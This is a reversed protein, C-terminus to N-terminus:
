MWCRVATLRWQMSAITICFPINRNLKPASKKFLGTVFNNKSKLKTLAWNQEIVCYNRLQISWTHLLTPSQEFKTTEQNNQAFFIKKKRLSFFFIKKEKPLFFFSKKGTKSVLPFFLIKKFLIFHFSSWIDHLVFNFCFTTGLDFFVM